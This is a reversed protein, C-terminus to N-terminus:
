KMSSSLLRCARLMEERCEDTQFGTEKEVKKVLAYFSKMKEYLLRKEINNATNVNMNLVSKLIQSMPCSLEQSLQELRLYEEETMRLNFTKGSM